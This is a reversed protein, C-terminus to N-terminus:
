RLVLRGRRALREEEDRVGPGGFGLALALAPAVFRAVRVDGEEQIRNIKYRKPSPGNPQAAALDGDDFVGSSSASSFSESRVLRSASASRACANSCALRASVRAPSSRSLIIRLTTEPTRLSTRVATM